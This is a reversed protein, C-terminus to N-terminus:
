WSASGVSQKSMESDVNLSSVILSLCEVWWLLQLVNLPEHGGVIAGIFCIVLAVANVTLQFQLFKRINNFV